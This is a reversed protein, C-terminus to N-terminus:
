ETDYIKSTDTSGGMVMVEVVGACFRTPPISSSTFMNVIPYQGVCLAGGQVSGGGM